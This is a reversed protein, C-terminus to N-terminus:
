ILLVVDEEVAVCFCSSDIIMGFSFVVVVAFRLHLVITM